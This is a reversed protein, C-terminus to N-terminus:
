KEIPMHGKMKSVQVAYALCALIDERHVDKFEVLLDDMSDGAALYSLIEEVPYRMNRITPKGHNISPDLTIRNLLQEM